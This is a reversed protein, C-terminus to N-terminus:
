KMSWLAQNVQPVTRNRRKISPPDCTWAFPCWRCFMGETRKPLDKTLARQMAESFRPTLQKGWIEDSFQILYPAIAKTYNSNSKNYYVFWMLPLDLAAMYLHAQEIHDKEPTKLKDFEDKSKTKIELGVRLVVVGNCSFTFAGDCSSHLDWEKATPSVGPHISIEDEFFVSWGTGAYINENVWACMLKFEHQLMAHVAHGINFRMQMNVDRSAGTPPRRTEGMVSYTLRRLCKSIESAHIGPSRERSGPIDVTYAYGGNDQSKWQEYYGSLQSVQQVFSFRHESSLSRLNDLTALTYM